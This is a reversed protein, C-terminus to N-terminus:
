QAVPIESHAAHSFRGEWPVNLVQNNHIVYCPPLNRKLNGKLNQFFFGILAMNHYLYLIM